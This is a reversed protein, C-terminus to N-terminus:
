KSFEYWELGKSFGVVTCFFRYRRQPLTTELEFVRSKCTMKFAQNGSGIQHGISAAEEVALSASQATPERSVPLMAKTGVLSM